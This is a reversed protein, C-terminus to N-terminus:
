WAILQIDIVVWKIAYNLDPIVKQGSMCTIELFIPDLALGSAPTKM